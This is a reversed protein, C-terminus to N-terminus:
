RQALAMATRLQDGLVAMGLEDAIALAEGLLARAQERDGAEDRALLMLAYQHRADAAWPPSPAADTAAVAAEFHEAADEYRGLTTCLIGLTTVVPGFSISAWDAYWRDGHPAVADYLVRARDADDLLACARSLAWLSGLWSENHPIDAFDNAALADLEARADDLLGEFALVWCLFCRIIRHQPNQAAFERLAPLLPEPSTRLLQHAMAQGGLVLTAVEPDGGQEFARAMAMQNLEGAEEFRGAM